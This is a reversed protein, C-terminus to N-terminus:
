LVEGPLCAIGFPKNVLLLTTFTVLKINPNVDYSALLLHLTPAFCTFFGRQKESDPGKEGVSRLTPAFVSKAGVKRRV